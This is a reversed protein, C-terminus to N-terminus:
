VRNEVEFKFRRLIVDRISSNADAIVLHERIDSFDISDLLDVFAANVFSSTIGSVGDFSVVVDNGSLLDPLIRDFIVRGDERSYCSDVINKVKLTGM